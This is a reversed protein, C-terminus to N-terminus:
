DHYPGAVVFFQCEETRDNVLEHVSGLPIWIAEGASVQRVEEDVRMRGGGSTIIYIEEYPDVHAEITKGPELVAQALFLIDEMTRNTLLMRAVGGGHARYTTAVVEPHNFDRVIM